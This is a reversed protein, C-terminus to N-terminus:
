VKAISRARAFLGLTTAHLADGVEKPAKGAFARAHTGELVIGLKFCAMVTYWDIASLDRASHDAYAAVLEAPTALADGEAIAGGIGFGSAPDPWTALLWGLDLLPDGITCMEWDVIAVLEPGTYSFMVNNFHFDGHVIGAGSSPPLNATLWDGVAAVGPIEPGPYNEFRAYSELESLWRGVQRELFGEPKGVGGLGVAVHDVNGLTAVAVAMELGMAHRIEPSGAHLAPLGNAVNFGDIPEMLYFVAGDLVTEDLCAAILPPHRVETQALATLVQVERRLQDNSHPRLHRPGRRLVYTRGARAFKVLINQTGGGLLGPEEIPGSGLGQADMWALLAELDIVDLDTDTTM